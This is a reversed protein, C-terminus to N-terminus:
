GAVGEVCLLLSSVVLDDAGVPDVSTLRHPRVLVRRAEVLRVSAGPRPRRWGDVAATDVTEAGGAYQIREVRHASADHPGTVGRRRGTRWNGDPAERARGDHGVTEHDDGESSHEAREVKGRALRSPLRAAAVAVARRM